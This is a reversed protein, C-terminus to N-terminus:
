EIPPQPRTKLPNPLQSPRGDPNNKHKNKSLGPQPAPSSFFGPASRSAAIAGRGADELTAMPIPANPDVNLNEVVFEPQPTAVPVMSSDFIAVQYQEVRVILSNFYDQESPPLAGLLQVHDVQNVLEIFQQFIPGSYIAAQNMSPNAFQDKLLQLLSKCRAKELLTILITSCPSSLHNAAAVEQAKNKENEEKAVEDFFELVGNLPEEQNQNAENLFAETADIAEQSLSQAFIFLLKLGSEDGNYYTVAIWSALEPFFNRIDRLAQITDERRMLASKNEDSKILDDLRDSLESLKDLHCAKLMGQTFHPIPALLPIM